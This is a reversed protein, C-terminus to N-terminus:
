LWRWWSVWSQRRSSVPRVRPTLFVIAGIAGHPVCVVCQQCRTTDQGAGPQPRRRTHVCRTIASREAQLSFCHCCGCRSSCWLPYTGEKHHLWHFCALPGVQWPRGHRGTTHVATPALLAHGTHCSVMVALGTWGGAPAETVHQQAWVCKGNVVSRWSHALWRSCSCATCTSLRRAAYALLV